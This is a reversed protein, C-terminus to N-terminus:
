LSAFAESLTVVVRKVLLSQAAVESRLIAAPHVIEIKSRDTIVHKAPLKGVCVILKPDAIRIFEQLRSSCAKIAKEDPEALKHGDEGLPLCCVLNTFAIRLADITTNGDEYATQRAEAIMRDLLKGAPGVFPRGLTDESQGPAEGVFLVDCPITGRALVVNSRTECLPCAVCDTWKKKHESWTKVESKRQKPIPM